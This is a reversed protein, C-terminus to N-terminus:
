QAGDAPEWDGHVDLASGPAPIGAAEAMCVLLRHGEAGLHEDWTQRLAALYEARTMSAAEARQDIKDAAM